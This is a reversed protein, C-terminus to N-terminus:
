KSPYMDVKQTAIYWHNGCPDLIGGSREGYPMDSVEFISEGGAALAKAYVADCDAVYLHISCVRSPYQNGQSAEIMSGFIKVASHRMIGDERHDDIVECDFAEKLFKLFKDGNEVVFYPTVSTFGNPIHSLSM